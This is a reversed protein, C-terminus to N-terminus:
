NNKFEDIFSHINGLEYNFDNSKNIKFSKCNLKEELAKQRKVEFILDKDVSKKDIRSSFIM